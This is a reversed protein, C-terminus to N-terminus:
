RRHSWRRFRSWRTRALSRSSHLLTVPSLSAATLLDLAARRLDNEKWSSRSADIGQYAYTRRVRSGGDRAADCVQQDGVARAEMAHLDLLALHERAALAFNKSANSDHLRYRVLRDPIFAGQSARALRLVLDLDQQMRLLPNYGGATLLAERQVVLSSQLVGMEGRLLDLYDVSRGYGDGIEGGSGDILDFGTYSYAIGARMTALQVELKDDRWVDDHDLFSVLDAGAALTGRNRAISVGARQQCVSRIRDDRAELRALDASAPDLGDGVVVLEWDSCSQAIVSEVAEDLLPGPRHTPLVVSIAPRERM